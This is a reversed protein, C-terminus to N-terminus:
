MYMKPLETENGITSNNLTNFSDEGTNHTPLSQCFIFNDNMKGDSQLWIFPSLGNSNSADM